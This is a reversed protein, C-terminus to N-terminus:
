GGSIGYGIPHGDIAAETELTGIGRISLNVDDALAATDGTIGNNVGPETRLADGARVIGERQLEEANLTKTFTSSQQLSDSSRASTIAIVQLGNTGEQMALTVRVVTAGIAIPESVAPQYGQRVLSLRYSGPPLSLLTFHGAADSRATAPSGVVRVDVNPLPLGTTADDVTGVISGIPVGPTAASAPIAFAGTLAM